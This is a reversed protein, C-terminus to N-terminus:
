TLESEYLNQQTPGSNERGHIGNTTGAPGRVFEGAAERIADVVFVILGAGAEFLQASRV